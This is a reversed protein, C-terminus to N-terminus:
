ARSGSEAAYLVRIGYEKELEKLKRPVLLQMEQQTMNKAEKIKTQRDANTEEATIVWGSLNRNKLM